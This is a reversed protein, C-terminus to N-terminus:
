LFTIEKVLSEISSSNEVKMGHRAGCYYFAGNVFWGGRLTGFVKMEAKKGDKVIESYKSIEVSTIKLM